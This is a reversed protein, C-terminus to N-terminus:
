HESVDAGHTLRPGFLERTVRLFERWQQSAMIAGNLINRRREDDAPEHPDHLAVDNWAVQARNLALGASKLLPHGDPLRMALRAYGATLDEVAEKWAEPDPDGGGPSRDPYRLRDNPHLAHVLPAYAGWLRRLAVATDDAVVRLDAIRDRENQEERISVARKEAHANARDAAMIAAIAAIAGSALTALVVAWAM